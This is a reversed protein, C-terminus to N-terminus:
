SRIHVTTLMFGCAFCSNEGLFECAPPSHPSLYFRTIVKPIKDSSVLGTCSHFSLLIVFVLNTFPITYQLLWECLPISLTFIRLDSLTVGHSPSPLLFSIFSLFPHECHYAHVRLCFLFEQGFVRM